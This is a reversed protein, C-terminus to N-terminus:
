FHFRCSFPMLSLNVLAAGGQHTRPCHGPCPAQARDDPTSGGGPQIEEWTPPLPPLVVPAKGMRPGPNGEYFFLLEPHALPPTSIHSVHSAPFSVQDFNALTIIFPTANTNGTLQTADTFGMIGLM